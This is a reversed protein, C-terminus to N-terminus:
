EITKGLYKVILFLLGIGILYNISWHLGLLSFLLLAISIGAVTLAYPVQTRVHSVHDCDSSISSVITTDSIPSCHNGFVSGTIIASTVAFIITESEKMGMGTNVCIIWSVPLLLPYLIAMTGWISGIGFSFFASLIFIIVPLLQPYIFQSSILSTIYHSTHLDAIVEALAWALVLIIVASLMIRLGQVMSEMTSRITIGKATLTCLVAFTIGAFSSWLLPIYFDSNGILVTINSLFNGQHDNHLIYLSNWVNNFSYSPIKVGSQLLQDYSSKAGTTLIGVVAVIIVALVPILANLWSHKSKNGPELMKIDGEIEEKDKTDKANEHIVGANRSEIEALNMKGYDKKLFILFFIFFLMLFPYYAFQLSKFFLSYTKEDIGLSFIADNIYGLEAGIWTTIFAVSSVSAATGHVIFALKERSVKYKDTVSRMTNGVILTNAYNDYFIAFSLFFTILQSSRPSHAYKSLKDVVGKMGGNQSIVAVMGGILLSFIIVSLHQKDNLSDLIYTDVVTLLAPIITGIAFGKLILVGFFISIFLSIIVEKTILAFLIAVLPPIISLWPPLFRISLSSQINTEPVVIDVTQTSSIQITFFAMGQFFDVVKNENNIQLTKKGNLSSDRNGKPTLAELKIEAFQEGIVYEPAEIKLNAILHDDISFCVAPALIVFLFFLFSKFKM